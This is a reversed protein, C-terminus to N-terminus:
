RIEHGDKNMIIYEPHYLKYHRILEHQYKFPEKAELCGKVVCVLDKYGLEIKKKRRRRKSTKMIIADLGSSILKYDALNPSLRNCLLARKVADKIIDVTLGVRGSSNEFLFQALKRNIRKKGSRRDTIMLDWDPSIGLQIYDHYIKWLFGLYEVKSLEELRVSYTRGQIWNEASLLNYADDTGCMILQTRLTGNWYKKNTLDKLAEFINSINQNRAKLLRQCEDLILIRTGLRELTWILRDRLNIDVSNTVKWVKLRKSDIYIGLQKLLYLYFQQATNIDDRLDLYWADNQSWQVSNYFYSDIM